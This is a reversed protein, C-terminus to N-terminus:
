CSCTITAPSPGIVSLVSQFPPQFWAILAAVLIIALAVIRKLLLSPEPVAGDPGRKVFFPYILEILADRCPWVNTPYGFTVSLVVFFQGIAVFPTPGFSVSINDCVCNSFMLYGMLGVLFYLLFAGGSTAAM